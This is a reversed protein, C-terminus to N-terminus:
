AYTDKKYGEALISLRRHLEVFDVETTFNPMSVAFLLNELVSLLKVRERGAISATEFHSVRLQAIKGDAKGQALVEILKVFTGPHYYAMRYSILGRRPNIAFEDEFDTYGKARGAGRLWHSKLVRSRQLTGRYKTQRSESVELGHNIEEGPLLLPNLGLRGDVFPLFPRVTELRQRIECSRVQSFIPAGFAPETRKRLLGEERVILDDLPGAETLRLLFLPEFGMRTGVEVAVDLITWDFSELPIRYVAFSSNLRLLNDLDANFCPIPAGAIHAIGAQHSKILAREQRKTEESSREPLCIMRRLQRLTCWDKNRADRTPRLLSTRGSM